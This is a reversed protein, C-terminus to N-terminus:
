KNDNDTQTSPLVEMLSERLFFIHGQQNEGRRIYKYEDKIKRMYDVSVGLIRAAEKVSVYVPNQEPMSKLDRVVLKATKKAIQQIQKDSLEFKDMKYNFSKEAFTNKKRSLDWVSCFLLRSKVFELGLDTM